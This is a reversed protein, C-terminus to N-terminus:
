DLYEWKELYTDDDFRITRINSDKHLKGNKSLSNLWDKHEKSITDTVFYEGANGININNM